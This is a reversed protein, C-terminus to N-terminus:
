VSHSKEKFVPVKTISILCPGNGIWNWRPRTLPTEKQPWRLPGERDELIYNLQLQQWNGTSMLNATIDWINWQASTGLDLPSHVVWTPGEAPDRLGSDAEGPWCLGAGKWIDQEWSPKCQTQFHFSPELSRDLPVVAWYNILSKLSTSLGLSGGSGSSNSQGM